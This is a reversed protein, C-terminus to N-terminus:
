EATAPVAALLTALAGPLADALESALMGRDAGRARGWQEGARGHVFVASAAAQQPDGGLAGLAAIAGALVDGAGATAMVPGGTPNVLVPRGPAGVLSYAGKLVVVAHTTDVARELAGFRDGEVDATDSGLLRAMEGPHPTLIRPGGARRLEPLHLTLHTLADADVVVLGPHEMVLDLSLKRAEDDLGFGPGLVVADADSTARDLDSREHGSRLAHTMVEVVRGDLAATVYASSAITVLGAGMRLAGRSALLAAGVKGPSGAVVVVRGAAGKHTARPRLSVWRRIDEAEIVGAIVGEAGVVPGPVGIDVVEVEGVWPVGRPTLHGPKAAAFAITRHARVASGLHRGTNACLGSPLDLSIREARSENMDSILAALPGTVDRSLGTGFLADVLVDASELLRGLEARGETLSHETVVGGSAVWADFMCRADGSLDDRGSVLAVKVDRGLVGLRRAVVFGDGGNNGSGAVVVVRSGPPTHRIVLEAAGRGANEMLLVSPVGLVQIVHRDFAQSQERTLVPLM